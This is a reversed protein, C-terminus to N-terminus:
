PNETGSEKLSMELFLGTTIINQGRCEDLLTCYNINNTRKYVLGEGVAFVEEREDTEVITDLIEEQVVRVTNDYVKEGVTFSSGVSVISFSDAPSANLLNSNWTLGEAVPFMLPLYPRNNATIMLWRPTRQVLFASDLEWGTSGAYRRLRELEYVTDKAQNIHYNKVWEKLEYALTDNETAFNYNIRYVDYIRYQGLSLPYYEWGVRNPDPDATQECGSVFLLLMLSVGAISLKLLKKM